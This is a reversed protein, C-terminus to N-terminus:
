KMAPPAPRLGPAGAAIPASSARRPASLYEITEAVVETTLRTEAKKDVKREYFESSLRGVICVKSGKDLYKAANAASKNWTVVRIFDTGKKGYRSVALLFRGVQRDGAINKLEVGTALNGLLMVNNM